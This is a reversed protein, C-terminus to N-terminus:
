DNQYVPDRCESGSGRRDGASSNVPGRASHDEKGLSGANGPGHTGSSGHGDTKKRRRGNGNKEGRGGWLGSSLEEPHLLENNYEGLTTSIDSHGLYLSVGTIKGTQRIKHAVFSHRLCHPTLVRGLVDQGAQRLMRWVNRPDYPTGTRTEILWDRGHFADQIRRRLGTNIFVIREKGGKGTVRISYVSRSEQRMNRKRITVLEAIRIGTTYLMEIIMATKQDSERILKRLEEISFFKTPKVAFTARRPVKIERCKRELEYLAVSRADEDPFPMTQYMIRLRKRIAYYRRRITAAAYGQFRLDEIWDKLSEASLPLDQGAVFACFLRSDTVYQDQFGEQFKMGDFEAM